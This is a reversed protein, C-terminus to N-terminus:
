FFYKIFLFKYGLFKDANMFKYKKYFAESERKEIILTSSVTKSREADM